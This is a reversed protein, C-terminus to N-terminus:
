QLHLETPNPEVPSRTFAARTFERAHRETDAFRASQKFDGAQAGSTGTKRVSMSVSMPAPQQSAAQRRMMDFIYEMPSPAPSGADSWTDTPLEDPSSRARRRFADRYQRINRSVLWRSRRVAYSEPLGFHALLLHRSTSVSLNEGRRPRLSASLALFYSRMSKAIFWVRVSNAKHIM